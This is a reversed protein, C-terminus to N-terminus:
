SFNLLVESVYAFPGGFQTRKKTPRSKLLRLKKKVFEKEKGKKYKGM